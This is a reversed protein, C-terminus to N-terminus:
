IKLYRIRKISYNFPILLLVCFGAAILLYYWRNNFLFSYRSQILDNIPVFQQTAAIFISSCGSDTRCYLQSSFLSNMSYQFPDIWYLIKFFYYLDNKTIFFGSLTSLVTLVGSGITTAVQITPTLFAFWLGLFSAFTLYMWMGLIYNFVADTYSVYGTMPYVFLTIILRNYYIILLLLYVFM